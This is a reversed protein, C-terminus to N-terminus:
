CQKASGLGLRTQLIGSQGTCPHATQVPCRFSNLMAAAANAGFLLNFIYIIFKCSYVIILLLETKISNKSKLFLKRADQRGCPMNGRSKQACM